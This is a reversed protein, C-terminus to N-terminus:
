RFTGLEKRGPRPHPASVAAPAQPGACALHDIGYIHIGGSFADLSLLQEHREYNLVVRGVGGAPLRLALDAFWQHVFPTSIGWATLQFTTWTCAAAADAATYTFASQM